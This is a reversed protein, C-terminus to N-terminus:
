PSHGEDFRVLLRYTVVHQHSFPTFSCIVEKDNKTAVTLITTNNHQLPVGAVCCIKLLVEFILMIVVQKILVARCSLISTHIVADHHHYLSVQMYM